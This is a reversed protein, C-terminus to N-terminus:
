ENLFKNYYEGVQNKYHKDVHGVYMGFAGSNESHGSAFKVHRDPVGNYIMTTIATKRLLHPHVWEWLPKAIIVEEGRVGLRGVTVIEHMEEYMRFLERINNYLTKRCGNISFLHDHSALNDRFVNELLRPLPIQSFAGTKQNRKNLFMADKTIVIDKKQLSLVDSIRMTTILITASVEWAHKMEKTLGSYIKDTLFKKVFNPDLVVIPKPETYIRKIKPINFFFKQSWYVALLSTVNFIESRSKASIEHDILYDEYDKFYRNFKDVIYTKKDTSLSAEVHFKSIDLQGCKSAFQNMLNSCYAYTNISSQSFPKNRKSIIQKTRMMYVYTSMLKALDFSEREPADEQYYHLKILDLEGYKLYLETLVVRHRNLENNLAVVDNTKGIFHKNFKLHNDIRIGTSLRFCKDKDSIRAQVINGRPFFSITM